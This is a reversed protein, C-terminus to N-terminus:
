FARACLVNVMLEALFFPLPGYLRLPPYLTTPPRTPMQTCPRLASHTLTPPQPPCTIAHVIRTWSLSCCQRSGQLSQENGLVRDLLQAACAGGVIGAQGRM